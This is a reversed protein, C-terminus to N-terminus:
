SVFKFDSGLSLRNHYLTQGQTGSPLLSVGTTFLSSTSMWAPCATPRYLLYNNTGPRLPPSGSGHRNCRLTNRQRNLPQPRIGGYGVSV